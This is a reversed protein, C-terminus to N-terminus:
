NIEPRIECKLTGWDGVDFMFILPIYRAYSITVHKAFKSFRLTKLVRTILFPESQILTAIDDEDTGLCGDPGTHAAQNPQDEACGQCPSAMKVGRMTLQMRPEADKRDDSENPVIWTISHTGLHMRVTKALKNADRLFLRLPQTEIRIARAHRGLIDPIPNPNGFDLFEQRLWEFRYQYVIDRQAKKHIQLLITPKNERYGATPVCIGVEDGARICRLARGWQELDLPVFMGRDGTLVFHGDKKLHATALVFSVRINGDKDAQDILEVKDTTVVLRGESLIDGVTGFLQKLLITKNTTWCWVNSPMNDQM